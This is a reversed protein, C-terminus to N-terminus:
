VRRFCERRRHARARRREAARGCDSTAGAAIPKMGAVRMGSAVLSRILATSVVTKGVETDTGTVFVGRIRASM